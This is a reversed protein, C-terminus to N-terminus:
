EELTNMPITELYNHPSSIKRGPLSSGSNRSTESNISQDTIRKEKSSPNGPRVFPASTTSIKRPISTVSTKRSADSSFDLKRKTSIPSRGRLTSIKSRMTLAREKWASRIKRLNDRNYVAVLFIFVGQLGNIIDTVVWYTCTNRHRIVSIADAIWVVGMVIFLKVYLWAQQKFSNTNSVRSSSNDFVSRRQELRQALTIAVHIFFFLNVLLLVVIIGSFYLWYEADDRFWCQKDELFNPLIINQPKASDLIQAIIGVLLPIGWAYASYKIFTKKSHHQQKTSRLTSWMDYCMVNLWFFMSLGFMHGFFGIVICQLDTANRERNNAIISIYATLMAVVLSILCRGNTRDRLEPVGLYVALTAILFVCSLSLLTIDLTEKWRCTPEPPCVVATEGWTGDSEMIRDICYTDPALNEQLYHLSGDQLLYSKDYEVSKPKLEYFSECFPVGYVFFLDVPPEAGPKLIGEEHFIPKWTTENETLELCNAESLFQRAPCCKRVCTVNQCAHHHEKRPDTYCFKAFYEPNGSESEFEGVCFNEEEFVTSDQHSTLLAQHPGYILEGEQKNLYVRREDSVGSCTINNIDTQVINVGELLIQNLTLPPSFPHSTSQLICNNDADLSYGAPCCRPVVTPRLCVNAAWGGPIHEICYNAFNENARYWLLEGSTLVYIYDSYSLLTGKALGDPCEVDGVVVNEFDTTRLSQMAFTETDVADLYTEQPTCELGQLEQNSACHCKRLTFNSLLSHFVPNVEDQGGTGIPSTSTQSACTKWMLTIIFFLSLMKGNM